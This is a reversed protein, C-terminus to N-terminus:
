PAVEVTKSRLVVVVGLSYNDGALDFRTARGVDVRYVDASPFTTDPLAEQGDDAAIEGDYTLGVQSGFVRVLKFTREDVPSWLASSAQGSEPPDPALTVEFDLPSSLVVGRLYDDGREVSLEWTPSYSEAFGLYSGNGDSTLVLPQGPPGIEVIADDVDEDSGGTEEQEVSVYHFVTPDGGSADEYSMEVTALVRLTGSSEGPDEDGADGAGGGGGGGGDGACAAGALALLSM